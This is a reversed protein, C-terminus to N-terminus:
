LFSYHQGKRRDLARASFSHRLRYPLFAWYSALAYLVRCVPKDDRFQVPAAWRTTREKRKLSQPPPKPSPTLASVFFGKAEEGLCKKL